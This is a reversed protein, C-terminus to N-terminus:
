SFHSSLSVAATPVCAPFFFLFADFHHYAGDDYDDFDDEYEEDAMEGSNSNPGVALDCRLLPLQRPCLKPYLPKLM